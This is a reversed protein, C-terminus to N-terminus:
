TRMTPRRREISKGSGMTDIGACYVFFGSSLRFYNRIPFPISSLRMLHNWYSTEGSRLPADVKVVSEDLGPTEGSFWDFAHSTRVDPRRAPM